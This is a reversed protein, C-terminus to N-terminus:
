RKVRGKKASRGSAGGKTAPRVTELVLAGPPRPGALGRATRDQKIRELARGGPPVREAMQGRGKTPKRM